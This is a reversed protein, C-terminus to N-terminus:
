RQSQETHRRLDLNVHQARVPKALRLAVTDAGPGFRVLQGLVTRRNTLEVACACETGAAPTAAPQFFPLSPWQVAPTKEALPETEISAVM